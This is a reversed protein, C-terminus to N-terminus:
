DKKKVRGYLVHWTIHGCHSQDFKACAQKLQKPALPTYNKRAHGAGINKMSKLFTVANEYHQSIEEQKYITDLTPFDLIGSPLNLACLTEKWEKFSNEGPMSYLISGSPKLYQSLKELSGEIDEFWQFAMNSVILDYHKDLTPNEGDLVKWEINKNPFNQKAQKVMAPSIDTVCLSADPHKDLLHATLNGTGCGIELIDTIPADPLDKALQDAIYKQIACNLDYATSKSEFNQVVNDKWNLNM